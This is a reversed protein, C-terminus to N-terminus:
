ATVEQNLWNLWCRQCVEKIGMEDPKEAIDGYCNQAPPCGEKCLIALEENCMSRVKDGNTVIIKYTISGTKADLEYHEVCSHIPSVGTYPAIHVKGRHNEYDVRIQCTFDCVARDGCECMGHGHSDLLVAM